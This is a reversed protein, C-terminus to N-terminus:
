QPPRLAAALSATASGRAAPKPQSPDPAWGTLFIMEVTETFRGREDAGALLRAAAAALADRRLPASRVSDLLNGAAEARIDRILAFPDAYSLTLREIDAVPLAFGARALLDGAARVDIQPHIRPAAAEEAAILASRLRGLTGAGAIAGIFLGDPRLTRRILTLAGPLDNVLDLGGAAMVLDFSRDAFPLRDEDCQVGEAARAYRFGADASVVTIGRERLAAGLAGDGCGLDLALKFPRTTSDLRWLLEEIMRGRVFPREGRAAALDRRRRRLARDFIDPPADRM